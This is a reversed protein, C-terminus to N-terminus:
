NLKHVTIHEVGNDDKWVPGSVSITEGVEYRKFEGGSKQLNIISITAVVERGEAGAITAMYGDKGNDIKTIKGTISLTDAQPAAVAAEPKAPTEVGDAETNDTDNQAPTSQTNCGWLLITFAAVVPLLLKKM